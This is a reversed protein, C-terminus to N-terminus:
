PIVIMCKEFDNIMDGIHTTWCGRGNSRRNAGDIPEGNAVFLKPKKTILDPMKEWLDWLAKQHKTQKIQLGDEREPNPSCLAYLSGVHFDSGFLIAISSMSRGLIKIAGESTM